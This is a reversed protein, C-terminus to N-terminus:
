EKGGEGGERAGRGFVNEKAYVLYLFGDEERDLGALLATGHVAKGRCLLFLAEEKGLTLRRRLVCLFQGATLDPPVLYKERDIEPTADSGREVIIPVYDPKQIRVRGYERKRETLTLRQRFTESPRPDIGRDSSPM